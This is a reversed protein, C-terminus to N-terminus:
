ARAAPAPDAGPAPRTGRGATGLLGLTASGVAGVAWWSLVAWGFVPVLAVGAMVAWGTSLHGLRSRQRDSGAHLQSGIAEAKGALGIALLCLLVAFLLLSFLAGFPGATSAAGGVLLLGIANPIGIAPSLLPRRESASRAGAVVRPILLLALCQWAWLALTIGAYILAVYFPIAIEQTARRVEHARVVQLAQDHESPQAGIVIQTTRSQGRTVIWREGDRDVRCGAARAVRYLADQWPLENLAITLRLPPHVEALPTGDTDWGLQIPQGTLTRFQELLPGLEQDAVDLTIKPIPAAHGKPAAPANPAPSDTSQACAALPAAVLLVLNLALTLLLNRM